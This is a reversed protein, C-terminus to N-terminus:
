MAIFFSVLLSSPLCVVPVFILPFFVFVVISGATSLIAASNAGTLLYVNSLLFLTIRTVSELSDPACRCVCVTPGLLVQAVSVSIECVREGM